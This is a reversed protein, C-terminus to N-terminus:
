GHRGAPEGGRTRAAHLIVEQAKVTFWVREGVALRLDAAAEPTIDAALGPAGDPQDEGRVRVAAGSVELGGIRVEVSNRPSGHPQQRFVSVAAPPFVAVVDQGTVNPPDAARGDAAAFRGHWSQGAASLVAGTESLVGGILNVGAIRAAFGSRPAALIARVPGLEAVRGNELVLVQDALALVDLLDHTILIAPRGGATMVRRLVGRLAAASTVDLGALPEDLVLVEPGAALARAIAVRQAQGGSLEGPRRSALDAAGVTELWSMGARRAAPRSGSSRRAAFAVNGLVSLHPFLLPNQSLLGIRRAHPPVHLGRRTDTVTRDGVRVVATDARVVGAIVGALSSKGAGNPGLIALVAGPAV